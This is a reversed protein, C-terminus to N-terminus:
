QASSGILGVEGLCALMFGAVMMIDGGWVLQRMCLPVALDFLCSFRQRVVDTTPCEMLLHKEDGVAGSDCFTCCRDQRDIKAFRGTEVPLSHLLGVLYVVAFGQLTLSCPCCAPVLLRFCNVELRDIWTHRAALASALPFADVPPNIRLSLVM